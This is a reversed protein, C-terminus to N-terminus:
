KGNKDSEFFNPSRILVTVRATDGMSEDVSHGWVIAADMDAIDRVSEMANTLNLSTTDPGTAFHIFVIRAKERKSLAKIILISEMAARLGIKVNEVGKGFGAGVNVGKDIMEKLGQFDFNRFVDMLGKIFLRIKEGTQLFLDKPKDMLPINIDGSGCLMPLSVRWHSLHLMKSIMDDSKFVIVTAGTEKASISIVFEAASNVSALDSIIFVLDAETTYSEVLSASVEAAKIGFARVGELVSLSLGDSTVYEEESAPAFNTTKWLEWDARLEEISNEGLLIKHPAKCKALASLGENDPDDHKRPTHSYLKLIEPVVDLALYEVGEIESDILYDLVDCGFKGLGIILINKGQGKEEKFHFIQEQEM